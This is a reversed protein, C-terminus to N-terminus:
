SIPEIVTCAPVDITKQLFKMEMDHTSDTPTLKRGQNKLRNATDAMFDFAVNKELASSAYLQTESVLAVMQALDLHDLHM